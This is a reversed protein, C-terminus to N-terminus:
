NESSLVFEYLLTACFSLTGTIALLTALLESWNLVRVVHEARLNIVPFLEGSFYVVLGALLALVWSIVTVRWIM